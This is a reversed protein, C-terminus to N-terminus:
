AAAETTGAAGCRERLRKAEDARRPMARLTAAEGALDDLGVNLAAGKLTHLLRDRTHPDGDGAVDLACLLADAERRFSALLDEYEAEGFLEIMEARRSGNLPAPAAPANNPPVHRAVVQRFVARMRDMTMPKSEFGDFGVSFCRKRDEESANATLAVIMTDANPGAGFRIAHVAEIGDMLPMQLDMLILDFKERAALEVAELGNEVITASQGLEALFRVAVRNNFANDEVLLIRLPPFAIDPVDAPPEAAPATEAIEAPIDFWFTSGRDDNPRMGIEGGLAEVIHKCITLGLGTGGFRRSISSDVQSFPEFLKRRGEADIGIGTDRIEFRLRTDGGDAEVAVSLVIGGDRTFKVANGLLNILVQRVRTPDTRYLARAVSDPMEARLTLDKEHARGRIIDLAGNVLDAIGVTQYEMELKGHEIKSYDLIENLMELLTNGSSRIVQVSEASDTPLDEADLLEAMGLIANLPTRIEHSITAMFQSKARNGAEAAEWSRSLERSARGARAAIARASSAQRRLTVILALLAVCLGSIVGATAQGMFMLSDRTEARQASVKTNTFTLFDETARILADFRDEIADLEDRDPAEGAAIANFAPEFGLIQSAADAVRRKVEPDSTFHDQYKANELINLRSYLIDYRLAIEDLMADPPASSHVYRELAIGLRRTERDLQYVSWIADERVSDRLTDQQRYLSVYLGILVILLFASVIQLGAALRGIRVVSRDDHSIPATM